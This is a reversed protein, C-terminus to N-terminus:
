GLGYTLSENYVYRIEDPADFDVDGTVEIIDDEGMKSFLNPMSEKHALCMGLFRSFHDAQEQTSVTGLDVKRGTEKERLRAGAESTGAGYEEIYCETIVLSM